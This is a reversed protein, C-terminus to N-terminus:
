QQNKKMILQRDHKANRSKRCKAACKRCLGRIEVHKTGMEGWGALHDPDPLRDFDPWYFDEVRNCRTCVLHHHTSLNNDFRVRNDAFKVRKILNIKEFTALTRYVTDFAMTPIAKRVRNYVDEASPHGPLSVLAQFIVLRQHTLRIGHEQCTTKFLQLKDTM